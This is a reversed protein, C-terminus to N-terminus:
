KKRKRIQKVKPRMTEIREWFGKKPGLLVLTCSHGVHCQLPEITMVMVTPTLPIFLIEANLHFVNHCLGQYFGLDIFSSFNKKKLGHDFIQCMTKFIGEWLDNLRHKFLTTSQSSMVKLLIIHYKPTKAPYHKM